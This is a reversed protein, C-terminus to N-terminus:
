LQAGEPFSSQNPRDAFGIYEKAGFGFTNAVFMPICCERRHANYDRVNDNYRVKEMAIKNETNTVEDMLDRFLQDAKLDPYAEARAGVLLVLDVLQDTYNDKQNLTGNQAAGLGSRLGAVQTMIDAENQMYQTTLRELTPLLRFARQYAVDVQKGQSDVQESEKVFSNYTGVASGLVGLVILGVAGLVALAIWSGKAM